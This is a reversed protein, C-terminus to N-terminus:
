NPCVRCTPFPCNTARTRRAAVYKALPRTWLEACISSASSTPPTKNALGFAQDNTLRQTSESQSNDLSLSLRDCAVIYKLKTREIAHRVSAKEILRSDAASM